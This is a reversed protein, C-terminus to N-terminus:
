KVRWLSFSLHSKNIKKSQKDATSFSSRDPPCIGSASATERIRFVTCCYECRYFPCLPPLTGQPKSSKGPDIL